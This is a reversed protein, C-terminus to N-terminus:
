EEDGIERVAMDCTPCEYMRIATWKSLHSDMQMLCNMCKLKM